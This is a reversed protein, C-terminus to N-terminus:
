TIMVAPDNRLIKPVKTSPNVEVLAVEEVETEVEAVILEEAVAEQDEV